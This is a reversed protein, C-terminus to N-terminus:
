LGVAVPSFENHRLLEARTRRGNITNKVNELIMKGAEEYNVGKSIIGSVDIDIHDGIRSITRSNGSVKIVPAIPTGSPNGVGTSFLILQCGTSTLATLVEQAAAPYDLFYLGPEVIREGLQLVDMITTNGSKLIAGLSKEEITSIGGEINDPVPNIGLLDVGNDLATKENNRVAQLIKSAVREDKARKVLIHEAGMIETTESFVASGGSNVIFDVAKGVAPNSAIGSTADTSGCKIGVTLDKLEMPERRVESALTALELAKRAGSEVAGLTGEQLVNLFEIPKNTLAKLRKVYTNTTKGEYGVILASQVNPNIVQGILNEELRFKNVGIEARGHPHLLPVTGDIISAINRAATNSFVSLSLVIVHNRIGVKKDANWFGSLDNM